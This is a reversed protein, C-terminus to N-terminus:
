PPRLIATIQHGSQDMWWDRVSVERITGDGFIIRHRLGDLDFGLQHPIVFRVQEPSGPFYEFDVVDGLVRGQKMLKPM